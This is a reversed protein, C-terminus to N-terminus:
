ARPPTSAKSTSSAPPTMPTGTVVSVVLQRGFDFIIREPTAPQAKIQALIAPMQLWLTGGKYVVFSPWFVLDGIPGLANNGWSFAILLMGVMSLYRFILIWRAVKWPTMLMMIFVLGAATAKITWLYSDMWHIFSWLAHLVESNYDPM